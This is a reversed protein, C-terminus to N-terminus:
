RNTSEIGNNGDVIGDLEEIEDPFIIHEDSWQDNPWFEVERVKEGTESFLIRKVRPCSRMHIGNCYPCPTIQRLKDLEEKTAMMAGDAVDRSGLNVPSHVPRFGLFELAATFLGM